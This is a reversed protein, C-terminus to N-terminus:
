RVEIKPFDGGLRVVEEGLRRFASVRSSPPPRSYWDYVTQRSVRLVRSIDAVTMVNDAADILAHANVIRYVSVGM